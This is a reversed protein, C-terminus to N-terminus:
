LNNVTVASVTRRAFLRLPMIPQQALLGEVLVFAIACIGSFLYLDSIGNKFPLIEGSTQLTTALVFSGVAAVMTLSGFWDM